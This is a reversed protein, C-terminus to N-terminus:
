LNKYNPPTPNVIHFCYFIYVGSLLLVNICRIILIIKYSLLSLFSKSTMPEKLFILNLSLPTM